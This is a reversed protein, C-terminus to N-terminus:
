PVPSFRRRSRRAPPRPRSRSSATCCRSASACARHPRVRRAARRPRLRSRRRARPRPARRRGRAVDIEVRSAGAHRVANTVAEQVIRYLATEVEAPYRVPASISTASVVIGHRDATRSALGEIAAALGLEDLAAPRLERILGRLGDIEEEIRAVADVLAACGSPTVPAPRRTSCCGCAGLGQLTDDHLERAWRRREAEAARMADRLRQEEVTRATAVATAASAAFAQLLPEDDDDGRAGLAVLMGLSQGRFVLPVLLGDGALGLADRVGDPGGGAPRGPGRRCTAPAAAVVLGGRERLLILMGRADILM